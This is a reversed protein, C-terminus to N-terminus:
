EPEIELGVTRNSNVSWVAQFAPATVAGVSRLWVMLCSGLGMQGRKRGGQKALSAIM